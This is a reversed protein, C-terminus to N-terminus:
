SSCKTANLQLRLPKQGLQPAAFRTKVRRRGLYTQKFLLREDDYVFSTQAEFLSKLTDIKTM